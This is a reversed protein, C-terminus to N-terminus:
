NETTTLTKEMAEKLSVAWANLGEEAGLLDIQNTLERAQNVASFRMRKWNFWDLVVEEGVGSVQALLEIEACNPHQCVEFFDEFLEVQIRDQQEDDMANPNSVQSSPNWRSPYSDTSSAFLQEIAIRNVHAALNQLEGTSSPANVTDNAIALLITASINDEQYNHALRMLWDKDIKADSPMTITHEMSMPEVDMEEIATESGNTGNELGRALDRLSQLVLLIEDDKEDRSARNVDQERFVSNDLGTQITSM